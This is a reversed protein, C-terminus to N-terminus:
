GTDRSITIDAEIQQVALKAMKADGCRWEALLILAVGQNGTTM